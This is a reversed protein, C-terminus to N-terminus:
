NRFYVRLGMVDLCVYLANMAEISEMMPFVEWASAYGIKALDISFSGSAQFHCRSNIYGALQFVRHSASNYMNYRPLKM